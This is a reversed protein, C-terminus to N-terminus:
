KSSLLSHNRFTTSFRFSDSLFNCRVKLLLYYSAIVHAVSSNSISFCSQHSISRALLQTETSLPATWSPCWLSPNGLIHRARDFRYLISLNEKRDRVLNALRWESFFFIDTENFHNTWYWNEGPISKESNESAKWTAREANALLARYCYWSSLQIFKKYVRFPHRGPVM